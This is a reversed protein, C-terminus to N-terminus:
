GHKDRIATMHLQEPLHQIEQRSASVPEFQSFYCAGAVALRERAFRDLATHAHDHCGAVVSGDQFHGMRQDSGAHVKARNGDSGGVPEGM